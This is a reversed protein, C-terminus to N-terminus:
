GQGGVVPAGGPHGQDGGRAKPAGSCGVQGMARVLEDRMQGRVYLAAEGEPHAASPQVRLPVKM